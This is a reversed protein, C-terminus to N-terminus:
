EFAVRKREIDGALKRWIETAFIEGLAIQHDGRSRCKAMVRGLASIQIWVGLDHLDVEIRAPKPLPHLGGVQMDAGIRAGSGLRDGAAQTLAADSPGAPAAVLNRCPDSGRRGVGIWLGVGDRGPREIRPRDNLFEVLDYRFVPIDDDSASMTEAERHGMQATARGAAVMRGEVKACDPRAKRCRDPDRDRAAAVLDHQDIAVATKILMDLFQLRDATM